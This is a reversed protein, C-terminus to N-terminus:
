VDRLLGLALSPLQNAQALIAQASSQLIQLRTLSASEVAVDVDVIQSAAAEHNQRSVSLNAVASALRSQSAGLQGLGLIVRNLESSMTDLAELAGAKTKLTFGPLMQVQQGRALLITGNGSNATAVDPAGDENFDGVVTCYGGITVFSLPALFSGDGNGIFAYTRNGTYGGVALDPIADGNLDAITVGETPTPMAISVRALFSGDGNARLINIQNQSDNSFVLDLDGDQDIDGHGFAYATSGAFYTQVAKYTGDGNGLQMIAAGGVGFLNTAADLKGDGNFDELSLFNYSTSPIGLNSIRAKFTGNGNGLLTVLSGGNWLTADLAGDGNVDKLAIEMGGTATATYNVGAAFTGGGQNIYVAVGGASFSSMIDLLGDGNLDGYNAGNTGAAGLALSAKFTGDGNGYQLYTQSGPALIDLNGDGNLDGTKLTWLPNTGISINTGANFDGTGRTHTIFDPLALALGGDTAYGAQTNLSSITGNLAKLGNMETVQSIRNFELALAQAESDLARRQTITLVGNSSQEALEKIRTLVNSLQSAAGEAVALFSLADNLNRVGQTYVRSDVKLGAAIAASAADDSPRVIRLGSSLREFSHGLSNTADALSRQTRLSAINSRISLM